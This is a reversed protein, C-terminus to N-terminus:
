NLLHEQSRDLTVPFCAFPDLRDSLQWVSHRVVELSIEETTLLLTPHTQLVGVKARRATEKKAVHVRFRHTFRKMDKEPLVSGDTKGDKRPAHESQSHSQYVITRTKAAHSRAQANTLKTKRVSVIPHCLHAVSFRSVILGPDLSFLTLLSQIAYHARWRM